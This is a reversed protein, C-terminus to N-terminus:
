CLEQQHKSLFSAIVLLGLSVHARPAFFRLIAMHSCAFICWIAIKEELGNQHDSHCTELPFIAMRRRAKGRQLKTSSIREGHLLMRHM